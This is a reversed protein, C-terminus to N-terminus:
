APGGALLQPDLRPDRVILMDVPTGDFLVAVRTAFGAGILWGM